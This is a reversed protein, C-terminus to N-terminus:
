IRHIAFVHIFIAALLIMAIKVRVHGCLLKTTSEVRKTKSNMHVRRKINHRRHTATFYSLKRYSGTQDENAKYILVCSFFCSISSAISSLPFNKMKVALCFFFHRHAFLASSINICFELLSRTKDLINWKKTASQWIWTLVFFTRM